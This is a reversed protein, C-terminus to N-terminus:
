DRKLERVARGLDELQKVIADNGTNVAGTIDAGLESVWAGGQQFMRDWNASSWKQFEFGSQGSLEQMQRAGIAAMVGAWGLLGGGNQDQVKDLTVPAFSQDQGRWRGQSDAMAGPTAMVRAEELTLQPMMARTVLGRFGEPGKQLANLQEGPSSAFRDLSAALGETTGGSNSLVAQWMRARGIRQFPAYFEDRLGQAHGGLSAFAAGGREGLSELGPTVRAARLLEFLEQQDVRVGRMAMTQTHQAIIELYRDVGGGFLGQSQALGIWPRTDMGKVGLRENAIFANIASDSTGTNRAEWLGRRGEDSVRSYGVQGFARGYGSVEEPTMAGLRPDAATTFAQQANFRGDKVFSPFAGALAGFALDRSMSAFRDGASASEGLAKSAGATAVAAGAAIPNAYRLLGMTPLASEPVGAERAEEISRARRMAADRLASGSAAITAGLPNGAMLPM